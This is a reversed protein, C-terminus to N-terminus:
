HVEYPLVIATRIADRLFVELLVVLVREKLQGSQLCTEPLVFLGKLLLLRELNCFCIRRIFSLM